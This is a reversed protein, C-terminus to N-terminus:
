RGARLKDRTEMLIKGQWNEGKGGVQGWFRNVANNTTGAEIIIADGTSLLVDALDPHQTFKALVVPRMRELKRDNWGESIEWSLLAHAACALVSPSPCMALWEAIERKAPKGFQYAHEATMFTRGEFQVRCRYLNSFVGYPNENARYFHIEESM